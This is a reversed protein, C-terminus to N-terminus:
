GQPDCETVQHDPWIYSALIHPWHIRSLQMHRTYTVLMHPWLTLPVFTTVTYRISPESSIYPEFAALSILARIRCHIYPEFAALSQLARIRGIVTLSPHPWHTWPPWFKHQHDVRFNLRHIIQGIYTALTHSWYAHGIYTVLIHPKLSIHFAIPPGLHATWIHGRILICLEFTAKNCNTKNFWQHRLTAVSVPQLAWIHSQQSRYLNRISWIHGVPLTHSLHPAFTSLSLGLITHSVFTSSALSSNPSFCILKRLDGVSFNPRFFHGSVNRANQKDM